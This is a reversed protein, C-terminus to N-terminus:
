STFGLMVGYLSYFGWNYLQAKIRGRMFKFIKFNSECKGLIYTYIRIFRIVM